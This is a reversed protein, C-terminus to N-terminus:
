LVDMIVLSIYERLRKQALDELSYIHEESDDELPERGYNHGSPLSNNNLGWAHNSTTSKASGITGERDKYMTPFPSIGSAIESIKLGSYTKSKNRSPLSDVTKPGATKKAINYRLEEEEDSLFSDEVPSSYPFEKNGIHARHQPIGLRGFGLDSRTDKSSFSRKISSKM